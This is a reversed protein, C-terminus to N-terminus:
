FNNRYQEVCFEYNNSMYNNIMGHIENATYSRNVKAEKFQSIISYFDFVIAADEESKYSGLYVKEKGLCVLAQWKTGNKSVGIYESRKEPHRANQTRAAKDSKRLLIGNFNTFDELKQLCHTAHVKFFEAFRAKKSGKSADKTRKVQVTPESIPTIESESTAPHACFCFENMAAKEPQPLQPWTEQYAIGQMPVMTSGDLQYFIPINM